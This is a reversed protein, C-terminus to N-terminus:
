FLRNFHKIQLIIASHFAYAVIELKIQTKVIINVKKADFTVKEISNWRFILTSLKLYTRINQERSYILCIASIIKTTCHNTM